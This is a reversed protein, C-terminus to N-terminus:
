EFKKTGQFIEAFDVTVRYLLDEEEWLVPHQVTQQQRPLIGCQQRTTMQM